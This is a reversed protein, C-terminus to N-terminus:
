SGQSLTSSVASVMSSVIAGLASVAAIIAAVIPALMVAYEFATPGDESVFFRRAGSIINFLRPSREPAAM